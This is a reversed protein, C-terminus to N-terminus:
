CKSGNCGCGCSQGQSSGCSGSHPCGICKQGRKKAKIIYGLAFGIIACLIVIILLNEM